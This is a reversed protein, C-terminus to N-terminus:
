PCDSLRLVSDYIYQTRHDLAVKVITHMIGNVYEARYMCKNYENTIGAYGIRPYIYMNTMYAHMYLATISIGSLNAVPLSKKTLNIAWVNVQYKDDYPIWMHITVHIYTCALFIAHLLCVGM